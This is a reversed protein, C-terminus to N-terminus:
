ALQTALFSLCRRGACQETARRQQRLDARDDSRHIRLDRQVDASRRSADALLRAFPTSEALLGEFHTQLRSKMLQAFEEPCTTPIPLSYNYTAIGYAVSMQDFDRYPIEGTLCEWLLVGFSCFRRNSM